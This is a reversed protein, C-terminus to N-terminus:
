GPPQEMYVKENLFSHFFTNKVDLQYLRWGFTIVMSLIIKVM